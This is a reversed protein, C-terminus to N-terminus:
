NQALGFLRRQESWTVPLDDLRRLREPPWDDSTTGDLLARVIDPALFTLRMQKSVDSIDANAEKAIDKLATDPNNFWQERWLFATKLLGAITENPVPHAETEGLVVRLGTGLETMLTCDLKKQM